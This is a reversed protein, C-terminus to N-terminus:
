CRRRKREDCAADVLHASASVAADWIVAVRLLTLDPSLFARVCPRM